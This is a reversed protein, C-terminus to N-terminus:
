YAVVDYNASRFYADRVARQMFIALLTAAIFAAGGFPLCAGGAPVDRGTYRKLGKM